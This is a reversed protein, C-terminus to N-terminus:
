AVEQLKARHLFEAWATELTKKASAEDASTGDNAISKGNLWFRWCWKKAEGIPPFVAGIEVDGSIALRRDVPSRPPLWTLRM